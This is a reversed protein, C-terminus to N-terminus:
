IKRKSRWDNLEELMHKQLFCWYGDGNTVDVAFLFVPARCQDTYYALHKCEVSVTAHSKSRDLHKKGKLQVAFQLGTLKGREDAVEVLYDIGYDPKQERHVWGPPLAAKFVRQALEDIQHQLPRKM